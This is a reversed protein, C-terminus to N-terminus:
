GQGKRMNMLNLAVKGGAVAALEEFTAEMIRKYSKFHKLLKEETVAGIGDM